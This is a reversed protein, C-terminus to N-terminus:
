RAGPPCARPLAPLAPLGERRLPGSFPHARDLVGTAGRPCIAQENDWDIIFASRYIGSGGKAQHSNDALIPGLLTIGHVRQTREIHAPALYATDM